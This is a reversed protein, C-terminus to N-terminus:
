NKKKKFDGDSWDADVLTRQREDEEGTTAGYVHRCYVRVYLVPFKVSNFTPGNSAVSQQLIFPFVETSIPLRMHDAFVQSCVFM